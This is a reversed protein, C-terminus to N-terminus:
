LGEESKEDTSHTLLMGQRYLHQVSLPSTLVAQLAKGMADLLHQSQSCTSSVCILLLSGGGNVISSGPLKVQVRVYVGLIVTCFGM